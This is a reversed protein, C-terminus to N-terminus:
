FGIILTVKIIDYFNNFKFNNKFGKFLDIRWRPCFISLFETPRSSCKGGFNTWTPFNESKPMSLM